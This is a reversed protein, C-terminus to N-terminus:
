YKKISKQFDDRHRKKEVSSRQFIRFIATTIFNSVSVGSHFSIWYSNRLRTLVVNKWNFNMANGVMNSLLYNFKLQLGLFISAFKSYKSIQEEKWFINRYLIMSGTYWHLYCNKRFCIQFLLLWLPRNQM